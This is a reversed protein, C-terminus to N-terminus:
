LINFVCLINTCQWSLWSIRDEELSILYHVCHSIGYLYGNTANLSMNQSFSSFLTHQQWLSQIKKKLDPQQVCLWTILFIFYCTDTQILKESQKSKFIFLFLYQRQWYINGYLFSFFFIWGGSLMKKQLFIWLGLIWNIMAYLYM